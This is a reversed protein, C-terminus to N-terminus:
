YDDDGTATDASMDDNTDNTNTNNDNTNPNTNNANNNTNNSGNLSGINAQNDNNLAMSNDMPMTDTSTNTDEAMQLSPEAFALSAAFLCSAIVLLKKKM